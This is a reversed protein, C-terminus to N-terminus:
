PAFYKIPITYGGQKGLSKVDAKIAEESTLTSDGTILSNVFILLCIKLSEKILLKM